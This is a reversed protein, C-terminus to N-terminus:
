GAKRITIQSIVPQDAAPITGNGDVPQADGSIADVVDMGETVFGFGAYQGDLFTSDAQVIFFQSSASDPDQARAMSIAGRVHSINNEFGNIAFEGEIQHDSGGTGNGLPDGGQIMFGDMIRHFTLNDYFGSEALEVFNAVTKPAVEESLAVTITGYDEVEIDAYHSININDASTMLEGEGVPVAAGGTADTQETGEGTADSTSTAKKSKADDWVAIAIIVAIVVLLIGLLILGSRKSQVENKKAQKKSAM